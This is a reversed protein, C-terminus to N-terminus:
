LLQLSLQRRAVLPLNLLPYLSPFAAVHLTLALVKVVPYTPYLRAGLAFLDAVRSNTEIIAVDPYACILIQSLFLLAYFAKRGLCVSTLSFTISSKRMQHFYFCIIEYFESSDLVGFCVLLLVLLYLLVHVLLSIVSLPPPFIPKDIYEKQLRYRQFKWHVDNQEQVQTFTNSFYLRFCLYAAVFITFVFLCCFCLVICDDMRAMLYQVVSHNRVDSPIM